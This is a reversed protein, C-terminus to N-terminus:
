TARVGKERLVTILAPIFQYLDLPVSYDAERHIPASTDNNVAVIIRSNRVGVMHQVQGSIGIAIYLQPSIWKGSLGVHKEEPMWGLDSALPRSCALDAGLLQALEEALKLDERRKFGRGVSVVIRAKALDAGGREVREVSVRRLSFDESSPKSLEVKEPGNRERIKPRRGTMQITLFAPLKKVALREVYGGGLFPREVVLRGGSFELSTCDTLCPSALNHAVRAFLERFVKKSPGLVLSPEVKGVLDIVIKKLGDPSIDDFGELFYARRLGLSALDEGNTMAKPVLTEVELAGIQDAVARLELLEDLERALILVHM